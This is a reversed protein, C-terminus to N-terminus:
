LADRTTTTTASAERTRLGLAERDDRHTPEITARSARPLEDVVCRTLLFLM